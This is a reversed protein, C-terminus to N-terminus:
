NQLKNSKNSAAPGDSLDSFVNETLESLNNHMKKNPEVATFDIINKYKKLKKIITGNDAGIELVSLNGRDKIIKNIEDNMRNVPYPPNISFTFSVIGLLIMKQLIENLM